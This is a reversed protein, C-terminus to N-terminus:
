FWTCFTQFHDCIYFICLNSHKVELNIWKLHKLSKLAYLSIDDINENGFFMNDSGLDLSELVSCRQSILVVTEHTIDISRLHLSTLSSGFTNVISIISQETLNPCDNLKIEKLNMTTNKLSNILSEDEFLCRSMNITELNSM